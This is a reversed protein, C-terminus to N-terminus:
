KKYYYTDMDLSLTEGSPSFSLNTIDFLRLNNELVVLLKKMAQYDVNGISLNISVRSVSPPLDPSEKEDSLSISGVILGQKTLLEELEGYLKEPAYSEPLLKNFRSLSAQDIKKYAEALQRLSELRAAQQARIKEQDLIDTQITSRTIEFKPKLVIFYGLILIIILLLSLFPNFYRNLLINLNNNKKKAIQAM